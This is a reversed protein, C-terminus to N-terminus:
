HIQVLKQSNLENMGSAYDRAVYLGMVKGQSRIAFGPGQIQEVEAVSLQVYVWRSAHMNGKPDDADVRSCNPVSANSSVLSM